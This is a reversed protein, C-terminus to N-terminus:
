KVELNSVKEYIVDLYGLAVSTDHHDMFNDRVYDKLNSLDCLIIDKKFLGSSSFPSDSVSKPVEEQEEEDMVPTLLFDARYVVRGKISRNTEEIVFELPFDKTFCLMQEERSAYNCGLEENVDSLPIKGGTSCSAIVNEEVDLMEDFTTMITVGCWSLEVLTNVNTKILDITVRRNTNKFLM